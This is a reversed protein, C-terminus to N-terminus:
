EDDVDDLLSVAAEWVLDLTEHFCGRRLWILLVLRDLFELVKCFTIRTHLHNDLARFSPQSTSHRGIYVTYLAKKYLLKHASDVSALTHISPSSTEQDYPVTKQTREFTRSHRVAAMFNDCRLHGPHHSMVEIFIRRHSSM